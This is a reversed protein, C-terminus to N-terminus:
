IKNLEGIFVLTTEIAKEIGCPGDIYLSKVSNKVDIRLEDQNFVINCKFKRKIFELASEYNGGTWGLEFLKNKVVKNM